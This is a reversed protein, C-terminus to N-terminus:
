RKEKLESFLEDLLDVSDKFYEVLRYLHTLTPNSRGLVWGRITNVHIGLDEALISKTINEKKLMKDLRKGFVKMVEQDKENNIKTMKLRKTWKILFKM